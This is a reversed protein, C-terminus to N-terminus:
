LTTDATFLDILREIHSSGCGLGFVNMETELAFLGLVYFKSFLCKMSGNRCGFILGSSCFSVRRILAWLIFLLNLIPGRRAKLSYLIFPPLSWENKINANSPLCCDAQRWVM